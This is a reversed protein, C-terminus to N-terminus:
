ARCLVFHSILFPCFNNGLPPTNAQAMTDVVNTHRNRIRALTDTFETLVAYDEESAKEFRILDAFSQEYFSLVLRTSPTKLLNEPLLHIEQMINALRVPVEHRLFKFSLRQNANEGLFIVHCSTACMTFGLCNHSIQSSAVFISTHSRNISSFFVLVGAM